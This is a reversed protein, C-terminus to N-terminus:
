VELRFGVEMVQEPPLHFYDSARLGLRQMLHYATWIPGSLAPNREARILREHSIYYTVEERCFALGLRALGRMVTPVDPKQMFGIRVTVRWFGNGVQEVSLREGAPVRPRKTPVLTLLIVHEHLVRNHTVHHVLMPSVRDATRTVFVATGPLRHVVTEEVQRMFDAFTTGGESLKIQVIATGKRWAVMLFAIFGGIALPLWGGELLKTSNAVLFALDIAAFFGMMLNTPIAPWNWLERMVRRLLITTILMTASVAIGYAAALAESHRFGLVIMLTAIMLLWNVVGVYIQGYSKRSTPSISMRPLLRLTIAQRTMSFVGSILAQSAIVTAMTALIVLPVLAWDPALRYFPNDVAEPKDLLLAGQGLYNLILAPFVVVFWARRIAGAGFHGMDAYLAEAGTLALFVAGFVAFAVGPAHVLLHEASLPNFAILIDPRQMVHSLGALALVGFWLAMIPGFLRGIVGTGRYQIAFLAVLVAVTLPLVFAGLHSDAVVLGEMASLVSIAPTIAGDGFLLAAGCIGLFVVMPVMEKASPPHVLSLLSLIGGEGDNDARLVLAVYKVAVILILAWIILSVVGLVDGESPVRGHHTVAGLATQMAYLPSTGIDGFVVGLAGLMLMGRSGHVHGHGHQEHLGDTAPAAGGEDKAMPEASTM